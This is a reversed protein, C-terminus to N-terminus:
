MGLTVSAKVPWVVTKRDKWFIGTLVGSEVPYPFSLTREEVLDEGGGYTSSSQISCQQENGESDVFWVNALDALSESTRLNVETGWDNTVVSVVTIKAAGLKFTANDTFKVKAKSETTGAAQEFALTLDLDIRTAGESPLGPLDLEILAAHGEPSLSPFSGFSASSRSPDDSTALDGGRDDRVAFTSEETRFGILGGNAARITLAIDTGADYSFARLESGDQPDVPAVLRLGSVELSMGNPGKVSKALRAERMRVAAEEAWGAQIGSSMESGDVLGDYEAALAVAVELTAGDLKYGKEEVGKVCRVRVQQIETLRKKAGDGGMSIWQYASNIQDLAAAAEVGEGCSKRDIEVVVSSGAVDSMRRSYEAELETASQPRMLAEMGAAFQGIAAGVEENGQQMLHLYGLLAEPPLKDTLPPLGVDVSRLLGLLQDATADDIKSLIRARADDDMGMESEAESFLKLHEATMNERIEAAVDNKQGDPSFADTMAQGLDGMLGGFTEIMGAMLLCAVNRLANEFPELRDPSLM